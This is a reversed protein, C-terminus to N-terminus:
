HPLDACYGYQTDGEDMSSFDLLHFVISLNQTTKPVFGVVSLTQSSKPVGLVNLAELAEETAITNIFEGTMKRIWSLHEHPELRM